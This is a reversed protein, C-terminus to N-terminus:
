RQSVFCLVDIQDEINVIEAVEAGVALTQGLTTQVRGLRGRIPATLSSLQVQMRLAAVEKKAQVQREQAALLKSKADSEAGEAMRLDIDPVSTPAKDRLAKKQALAYTALGLATQAQAIDEAASKAASEAKELNLRSIRDDLHVIEEGAAVLDVEHLTKVWLWWPHQLLTSVHGDIAATVRAVDGPLPQTVGVLQTWEGPAALAAPKWEVPSPPTTDAPESPKSCGTLLAASFVLFVRRRFLPTM